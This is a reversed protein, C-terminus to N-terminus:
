NLNNDEEVKYHITQTRYAFEIDNEQEFKKLIKEKINAQILRKRRVSTLYRLTVQVGSEQIDIYTIPTFKTYKIMYRKSMEKIQEKAETEIKETENDAISLIIEEAKRWDSAFTILINIENWLYEFGSTFNFLSDKFINSNPINVLRGTSQDAKVWNGIELLTTYFVQVDIVDGQIDGWEIRDGLGFPRRFIILIWGAINLWVQHLALALGASLFGLYTTLTEPKKSWLFVFIIIVTLTTLYYTYRRAQHRRKFNDVKNNILKVFWFAFFYAIIIIGISILGKQILTNELNFNLSM